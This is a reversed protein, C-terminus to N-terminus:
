VIPKLCTHWAINFFIVLGEQRPEEHVIMQVLHPTAYPFCNPELCKRKDFNNLYTKYDAVIANLEYISGVLMSNVFGAEPYPFPQFGLLTEQDRVGRDSM